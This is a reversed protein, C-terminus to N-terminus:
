QTMSAQTRPKDEPEERFSFVDDVDVLLAASADVVEPTGPCWLAYSVSARLVGDRLGGVAVGPRM